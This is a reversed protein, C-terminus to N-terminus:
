RLVGLRRELLTRRLDLLDEVVAAKGVDGAEGAALRGIV